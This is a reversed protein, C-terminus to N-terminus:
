VGAGASLGRRMWVFAGLAGVQMFVLFGIVYPVSFTYTWGIVASGAFWAAGYVTNFIGYATGRKSVHTYDALAARLITEQVGMAAGWLVVAAFALAHDTGFALFPICIGLLPVSLLTALGFRDYARGIALAAVADVGMAVAYFLPIEAEAVTGTVAFHYAIVPFTAFGAMTLATFVGYPLLTRPLSAAEGLIPASEELSAPEPVSRRAFLLALIMLVFPVTLLAFGGQYEGEMLFIAAFLLPGIIAGVQDLAEHVAFGWGRGVTATANSLIADRAPVRIGKGVRELILLLGAIEWSGALALLPVAVLMGYGIFTIAWYHRTADALYGSALRLAYGLFEGLGSVVGVALAGAGLLYLYPGAVSRAGEYIIDGFLSVVGFLLIVTYAARHKGDVLLHIKQEYAM